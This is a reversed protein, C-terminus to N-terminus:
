RKGGTNGAGRRAGGSTPHTRHRRMALSVRSGTRALLVGTAVAVMAVVPTGAWYALALAPEGEQVLSSTEVAFTSFTTFGGLVGVGAFPRLLPHAGETELVFVMLVGILLCGVANVGLTTWPMADAATPWLEAAAYRASAGVMGGVAIVPVVFRHRSWERRQSAAHLDIDPDVADVTPAGTEPLPAGRSPRQDPSDESM